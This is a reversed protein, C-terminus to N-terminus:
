SASSNVVVVVVVIVVIVVVVVVIVVIVVVIVVVAVVVAAVADRRHESDCIGDEITCESTDRVTDSVRAASNASYTVTWPGEGVCLGPIYKNREDKM